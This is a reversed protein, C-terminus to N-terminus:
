SFAAAGLGKPSRTLADHEEIKSPKLSVCVDGQTQSWGQIALHFYPCLTDSDIVMCRVVNPASTPYFLANLELVPVTSVQGCGGSYVMAAGFVRRLDAETWKDRM